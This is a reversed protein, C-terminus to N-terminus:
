IPWVWAQQQWLQGEGAICVSCPFCSQMHRPMVLMSSFFFFLCPSRVPPWSKNVPTPASAIASTPACRLLCTCQSTAICLMGIRRVMLARLARDAIAATHLVIGECESDGSAAAEAEVSLLRRVCPQHGALMIAAAVALAARPSACSAAASLVTRASTRLEALMDTSPPLVVAAPLADLIPGWWASESNDTAQFLVNGALPSVVSRLLELAAIHACREGQGIPGSGVHMELAATFAASRLVPVMATEPALSQRHVVQLACLFLYLQMCADFAAHMKESHDHIYKLLAAAFFFRSM